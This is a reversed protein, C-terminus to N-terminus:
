KRPLGSTGLPGAEGFISSPRHPGLPAGASDSIGPGEHMPPDAGGRHTALTSVLPFLSPLRPPISRSWVRGPGSGSSTAATMMDSSSSVSKGM